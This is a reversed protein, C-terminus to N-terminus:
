SVVNGGLVQVDHALQSRMGQDNEIGDIQVKQAFFAHGLEVAADGRPYGHPCRSFHLKREDALCVDRQHDTMDLLLQELAEFGLGPDHDQRRNVFRLLSALRKLLSASQYEDAAKAM